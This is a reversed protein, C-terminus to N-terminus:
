LLSAIITGITGIEAARTLVKGLVGRLRNEDKKVEDDRLQEILEERGPVRHEELQEIILELKQEVRSFNLTFTSHDGKMNFINVDRAATVTGRGAAEGVPQDEEKLEIGELLVHIPIDQGLEGISIVSKGMRKLGTLEKYKVAISESGPLPVNEVANIKEYDANIDRLTHRIVAFYDRKEQGSVYIFIKKEENDAKVVAEADFATNQLLVGTRWRCNQKIDNHMRVIFRPMVLHPLFDYEFIFKLSGVYDFEFESEEVNLLDPILVDGKELQYCIEFKKMLEIICHYKDPPYYYDDEKKQKLIEDLFAPKLIGKHEAVKPSNIIKYVAETVWKPEPPFLPWALLSVRNYPASPSFTL